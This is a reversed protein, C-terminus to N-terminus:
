NCVRVVRGIAFGAVKPIACAVTVAADGLQRALVLCHQDFLESVNAGPYAVVWCHVRKGPFEGICLCKRVYRAINSCQAERETRAFIFSGISGTM